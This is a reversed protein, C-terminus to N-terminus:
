GTSLSGRRRGVIVRAGGTFGSSTAAQAGRGGLWELGSPAVSWDVDPLALFRETTTLLGEDDGALRGEIRYEGAAGDTRVRIAGLEKIGQGPPIIWDEEAVTRDDQHCVSVLIQGSGPASVHDIVTMRVVAEDGCTVVAREAYILLVRDRNLRPLDHYPAKPRRWIDLIGAHFESGGDNLATLIYGSARRNALVAEIQRRNGAAGQAQTATAM